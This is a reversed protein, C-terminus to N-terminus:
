GAERRKGSKSSASPDGYPLPRLLVAYVVSFIATNAGIGLALALTAIVTFGPNRRLMRFAFRVDQSLMPDVGRRRPTLAGSRQRERFSLLACEIAAVVQQMALAAGHLSRTWRTARRTARVHRAHLDWCTPVFCREATTAPLLAALARAFAPLEHM